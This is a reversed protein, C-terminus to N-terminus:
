HKRLLNFDDFVSYLAPIVLLVLVTTALLGFVISCALPILIQAQMSREAMLPMLGMITTLSTLLVARFRDRSALRAADYASEGKDMHTRIFTVLLISDNVVIGALSIFGMISPMSLDLGLLIHGWIVGILAFPILVMVIIPELYSKFQLSLIIFVGFIGILFAKVMGAMATKGEKEQGELLVSVDPFEKHLQPLFHIRTHGIVENANAINTDIDGTVTVTRLSNIRNISAYGRGQEVTAVSQLPVMKGQPSVVQFLSLDTVFTRDKEALKVVIEYSEGGYQVESAVSGYFAARLQNAINASTFGMALAGKNMKIRFEPKGPRLDDSLDVVGDYKSLWNILEVSALKLRDLDRGQLQIEIALGGPGISPEKYAINIVDPMEGISERWLATITDIDTNREEASLLDLSVTAVHPGSEGADANTNFLVSYNEVLPRQDPQEPTLKTNIKLISGVIINVVEETRNFSTGQPMLIRAQLVDGETDPFAKVKLIGGAIMAISSIFLFIVCGLMLYRWNVVFDVARGLWNERIGDIITDFKKRFGKSAARNYGELSHSLHNPLIAFAEVISVTITLILMVPIAYLVKGIDGQMSLALAGFVFITTLFSSFVGSSVEAVGDITAQLGTKGKELHAAVNEAIVIADDMLIGIAILLGVMTLMNFSFGIQKMFFFTLCFSIPLGMAVWFSMRFNFFLWLTLFVLFLGELGNITLMDLRDRVIKSINQTVVFEVGPAAIKEENEIFAKIEDMISLADESKNKNIQLLGARKGNFRISNEKDEFTDTITAIDRLKVEGGKDSSVIVLEGLEYPTRREETFRILYDTQDTEITGAPMDISQNQLVTQIDSVSLGLQLLTYYPIEVQLQHESFGLIDVQSVLPLLKIKDKLQECYLKLHPESMPGTVAISLVQDTRNLRKVIVDEVEPPFNSIAEVETKIDNLFETADAGDRMELTVTARGEAAKSTVKVLNSVSEVAEEIRECVSSEVDEATAGPYVATVSVETSAFDPFTERRIDGMHMLGLLVFLVMLLNAATPHEALPAIWSKMIKM